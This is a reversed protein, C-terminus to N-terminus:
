QNRRTDSPLIIKFVTGKGPESEVEISGHHNRIIHAAMPLGLGSGESKDKSSYFPDFIKLITDNDMGIGEDWISIKWCSTLRDSCQFPEARLSLLGGWSEGERRMITMAHGANICINLLSQELQSQDAMVYAARSPVVTEMRVSKDLSLACLSNVNNLVERLDTKTLNITSGASLNKLQDVTSAGRDCSLRILRQFELAKERPISDEKKLQMDMLEAVGSLSGLVNNFDHSIGRAMTGAIELKQSQILQAEYKKRRGIMRNLEEALYGLEDQRRPVIRHDLSNNQFERIGELLDKLPRSVYSSLFGLLLLYVLFGTIIIYLFIIYSTQRYADSLDQTFLTSCIIWDWQWFYKGYLIQDEYLEESYKSQWRTQIFIEDERMSARIVDQFIRRGDHDKEYSLNWAYLEPSLPHLLLRGSGDMVFFYENKDYRLTEIISLCEEQLQRLNSEPDRRYEKEYDLALSYVIDVVARLKDKREKLIRRNLDPILILAFIILLVTVMLLGSIYFKLKLSYRKQVPGSM